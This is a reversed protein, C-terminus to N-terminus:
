SGRAMFATMNLKDIGSRRAAVIIPEIYSYNVRHDARIEVCFGEGSVVDTATKRTQFIAALQDVDGIPVVLGDIEYWKAQGTAEVEGTAADGVALVNVIIRPTALQETAVAQSQQPRPLEMPALTGSVIQGGIVFFIILQFTCDIMPTMNFSVQGSPSQERIAWHRAM